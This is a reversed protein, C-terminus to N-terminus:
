DLKRWGAAPPDTPWRLVPQGGNIGAWVMNEEDLIFTRKGSSPNAPYACFAFRQPNRGKGQDYPKGEEDVQMAVFLYGSKPLPSGLGGPSADAQATSFEILRIEHGGVTTTYLHRVDGTWFDQIKNDDRDNARFDAEASALTKLTVAANRENAARQSALLGPIAIAAIIAIVPVTCGAAIVIILIAPIGRKAAAAPAGAPADYRYKCFRCLVAAAQITEACQPCTKTEDSM